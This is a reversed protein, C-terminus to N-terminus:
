SYLARAHKRECLRIQARGLAIVDSTQASLGTTGRSNKRPRNNTACDLVIGVTRVDLAVAFCIGIIEEPMPAQEDLQRHLDRRQSGREFQRAVPLVTIAGGCMQARPENIRRRPYIWVELIRLRDFADAGPAAGPQNVRQV